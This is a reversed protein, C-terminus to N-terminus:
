MKLINNIQHFYIGNLIEKKTKLIKFIKLKEIFANALKQKNPFSNTTKNLINEFFYTELDKISCPYNIIELKKKNKKSLFNTNKNLNEVEFNDIYSNKDNNFFFSNKTFTKNKIKFDKLVRYYRRHRCHHHFESIARFIPNRLIIIIKMNPFLAHINKMKRYSRIYDPSKDFTHIQKAQVLNFNPFFNSYEKIKNLYKLSDNNKTELINNNNKFFHIENKNNLGKGSTLNPHFNLLKLLEGTGSKMAGVIIFTPLCKFISNEFNDNKEIICAGTLFQSDNFHTIYGIEKHYFQRSFITVSIKDNLKNEEAFYKFFKLNV